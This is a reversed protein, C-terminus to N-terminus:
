VAASKPATEPVTIDGKLYLTANGGIRVRNGVLECFLEGGRKSIQRATLSNKGLERAWYPTLACHSSGTVPDEDIGSGPAFFRSIFDVSNGPATVIVGRADTKYLARFDPALASITEESDYILLYDMAKFIAEPRAGLAGVVDDASEIRDVEIAPFDLVLRDGECDVRLEGSKSLFTISSDAVKLIEFLVYGSALTAHGCLAIEVSPTFWRIHYKDGEKVFFATESLNNELAIKQMTEDPLWADLPVVAAPNGHFPEKTFADVQYIKLNM